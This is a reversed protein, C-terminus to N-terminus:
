DDSDDSIISQYLSQVNGTLAYNKDLKVFRIGKVFILSLKNISMGNQGVPARDYTFRVFCDIVSGPIAANELLWDAGEGSAFIDTDDNNSIIGRTLNITVESSISDGVELGLSRILEDKLKWGSWRSNIRLRVPVIEGAYRAPRLWFQEFKHAGKQLKEETINEDFSDADNDIEINFSKLLEPVDHEILKGLDDVSSFFSITHVKKLREKFVNLENTYQTDVSSLAIGINPSDINALYVLVPIKNKIAFEYETETFSKQNEPNISGYSVGVLLIMLKCESLHQLCTELPTDPNSGFFEMGKVIQELGMLRREVEARHPELDKFTSSVFVPVHQRIDNTAM